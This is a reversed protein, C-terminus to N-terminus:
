NIGYIKNNTILHQNEKVFKDFLVISNDLITNFLNRDYEYTEVYTTKFDTVYYSFSDIPKGQLDKILPYCIHQHNNEFKGEFYKGTTKLDVLVSPFTYDIFGYIEVLGISTEIQGSVFEQQKTHRHLKHTIENVLKSGFMFGDQEYANFKNVELSEKNLLRNVVSELAVGKKAAEAMPKEVRNIKDLLEQYNKSPYKHYWYLSDLLTPYLKYKLM